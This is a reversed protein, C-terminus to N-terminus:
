TASEIAYLLQGASTGIAWIAQSSTLDINLGDHTFLPYGNATTVASSNGIYIADTSTTAVCKLGIASRNSLPSPTIQVASTGVTYQSTQFHNLGLINTTQTGNTQNAEIAATNTAIATEQTIQSTQNASTAAGTPLPLSAASIPQTTTGTPDIRIPHAATGLVNTGDTVEVPWANSVSNATGQNATVTGSIPQTAPFNDIDVHLSSGSPQVVTVNGAVSSVAVTGSVPQTAPFNDVDVHLASGSPQVVTFNGSGVVTANLNAATAQTVTNTWTGSQTVPISTNTVNTQFTGTGANATVTGSVVWPSTSQTVAVTSLPTLTSLQSATLVVPLSAAALQQGLSFATGGVETLNVNQTGSPTLSGSVVWPTTSQTVGVTGSISVTGSVAQTAPFNGIDVSDTSSSLTWTRGTSWIGSQSVPQVSQFFTGTVPIASQNSAIVVPLSAAELAQGLTITSGSVSVLNVNPSGSIASAVLLNGMSDLMLPTLNGTPGIGAVETAYTPATSGDVGISPNTTPLNSGTIPTGNVETINVNSTGGSGSVDVNISGDPNVKLQNDSGGQYGDKITTTAM